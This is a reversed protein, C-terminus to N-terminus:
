FLRDSNGTKKKRKRRQLAREREKKWVADYDVGPMEPLKAQRLAQDATVFPPEAAQAASQNTITKLPPFNAPIDPIVVQFIHEPETLDKLYHEDMDHLVAGAPLHDRVAEEAARSLLTQGGHGAALLRAIRNLPPGLYDGDRLEVLSTHLAMRVRLQGIENWCQAYLGRQAALAAALADLASAFAAFFADGVTRFVVGNRAIIAERLIADHSALAIPMAEPYQEWLRTSGEIDTFLLTVFGTPLDPM